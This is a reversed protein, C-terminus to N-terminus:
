FVLITMFLLQFIALINQFNAWKYSSNINIHQSFQKEFFNLFLFFYYYDFINLGNSSYM